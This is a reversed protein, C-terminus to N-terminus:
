DKGDWLTRKIILEFEDPLNDAMWQMKRTSEELVPKDTYFNAFRSGVLICGLSHKVDTGRHILIGSRDAVNPIRFYTYPRSEKPPQKKVIYKGEPICSVSRKNDKWPLELTKAIIKGEKYLSGLTRDKLGITVLEYSEM